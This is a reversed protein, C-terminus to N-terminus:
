GDIVKLYEPYTAEIQKFGIYATDMIIEATRAAGTDKFDPVALEFFGERIKVDREPAGCLECLAGAATYITVSAAACIIDHGHGAYGSHGRVTINNIAGSKRSGIESTGSRTIDVRIM